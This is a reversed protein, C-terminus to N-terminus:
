HAGGEPAAHAQAEQGGASATPHSRVLYREILVFFVPVLCVALATAVLLGAFVSLGIVKRSEAGAGVATVLPIVGLIFAFSTMLIPRLRLKASELAAKVLDLGEEKKMKAFEVILIANKAGLGILTVLGIQTFVNNVYSDSTFRMLFLGLFAGFVVFPTGLLISLPLSWSEYQAALILFVFILAMLFVVGGTGAAKIEQYSMNTWDYGWGAPLVEKAVAELAILAEGSTYGTAPVGTLEASRFLNFRNTYEPGSMPGLTVFTNLPVMAGQNNRVSFKSLDWTENRFDADASLYVKYVRGFRNFDNVYNAGYLTGLTTNVDSIAVGQKLVKDYDVNAFLQPAIPRYFTAIRGIEPRKRAAALFDDSIKGLETPSHGGRDQLMMSFGAGTGLGQIAPPGFAYVIAEPIQNGVKANFRDIVDRVRDKREAWPKM